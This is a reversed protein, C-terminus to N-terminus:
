NVSVLQSEWTVCCWGCFGGLAHQRGQFVLIDWDAMDQHSNAEAERGKDWLSTDPPNYVQSGWCPSSWYTTIVKWSSCDRKKAVRGQSGKHEGEEWLDRKLIGPKAWSRDWTSEGLLSMGVLSTIEEWWYEWCWERSYFHFAIQCEQDCNLILSSEVVKMGRLWSLWPVLQDGHNGLGKIWVTEFAKIEGGPVYSLMEFLSDNAELGSCAARGSWSCDWQQFGRSKVMNSHSIHPPLTHVHEELHWWEGQRNRM